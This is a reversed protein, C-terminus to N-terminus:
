RRQAQKVVTELTRRARPGPEVFAMAVVYRPQASRGHDPGIKLPESSVIRGSLDITVPYVEVTLAHVSGVALEEVAHVLAGSVSLRVLDAVSRDLRVRGGAIHVRVARPAPLHGVLILSVAELLGQVTVPKDLFAEEEWLSSRREFLHSNQDTLYLIKIEPDLMRLRRALEDGPVGPIAVDTVLLDFPGHLEAIRLAEFGDAATVIQYGPQKLATELFTRGAAEQDVILLKHPLARQKASTTKASAM